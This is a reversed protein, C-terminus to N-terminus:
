HRLHLNFTSGRTEKKEKLKLIKKISSASCKVQHIYIYIYGQRRKSEIAHINIAREEKIALLNGHEQNCAYNVPPAEESLIM